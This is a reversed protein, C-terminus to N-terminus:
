RGPAPWCAGSGWLGARCGPAPVALWAPRPTARRSRGPIGPADEATVPEVACQAIRWPRM